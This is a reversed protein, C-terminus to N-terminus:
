CIELRVLRHTAASLAACRQHRSGDISAGEAVTGASMAENAGYACRRRRYQRPRDVVLAALRRGGADRRLLHALAHLQAYLVDDRLELAAGLHDGGRLLDRLHPAQCQM